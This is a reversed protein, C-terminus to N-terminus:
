REQRCRKGYGPSFPVAAGFHAITAARGRCEIREDAAIAAGVDRIIIRDAGLRITRERPAGFGEHRGRFTQEDFHLCRAGPTADLWFDALDLPAPEREGCRPGSHATVSRYANRW